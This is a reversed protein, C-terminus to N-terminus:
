DMAMVLLSLDAESVPTFDWVDVGVNIQRGNVKWSNHVHGHILPLGNDVPRMESFRDRDHSDGVYPYHSIMVKTLGLLHREWVSPKQDEPVIYGEAEMIGRFRERKLRTGGYAMSWKDHNGPLLILTGARLRKLLKVNEVWDGMINDGHMVLTDSETVVDNAAEVLANNMHAVDKFPRECLELIRVHGAHWDSTHFTTM